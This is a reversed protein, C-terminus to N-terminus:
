RVNYALSKNSVTIFNRSVTPDTQRWTYRREGPNLIRRADVLYLHDCIEYINKQANHHTRPLGGNKDKDVDLVLNFDDGIIIEEGEFDELHDLLNKFLAPDDKNPTYINALTICM